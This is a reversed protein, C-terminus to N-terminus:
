TKFTDSNLVCTIDYVLVFKKRETITFCFLQNAYEDFFNIEFSRSFSRSLFVTTLCISM